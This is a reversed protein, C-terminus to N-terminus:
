KFIFGKPPMINYWQWPQDVYNVIPKPRGGNDVITSLEAKFHQVGISVTGDGNSDVFFEISETALDTLKSDLEGISKCSAVVTELVYRETMNEKRGKQYPPSVVIDTM